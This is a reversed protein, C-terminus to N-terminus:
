GCSPTLPGTGSLAPTASPTGFLAGMVASPQLKDAREADAKARQRRRRALLLCGVLSALLLSGVAPVLWCLVCTLTQSSAAHQVYM